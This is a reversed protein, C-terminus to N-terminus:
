GARVYGSRRVGSKRIAYKRHFLRQDRSRGLQRCRRQSRRDLWRVAGAALLLWSGDTAESVDAKAGSVSATTSALQAQASDYDPKTASQSQIFHRSETLASSPRRMSRRPASVARQGAPTQRSLETRTGRCSRNGEARLRGSRYKANWREPEEGPSCSRYLRRVPFRPGSAFLSRHQGLVTRQQGIAISQVMATRVPVPSRAPDTSEKCASSCSLPRRVALVCNRSRSHSRM